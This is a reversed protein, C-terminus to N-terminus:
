PWTYTGGCQEDADACGVAARIEAEDYSAHSAICSGVCTDNSRKVVSRSDAYCYGGWCYPYGASCVCDTPVATPTATPTPTPMPTPMESPMPSPATTPNPSANDAPAAAEVATGHAVCEFTLAASWRSWQAMAVLQRVRAVYIELPRLVDGRVLVAARRTVAASANKVALSTNKAVTDNAVTDNAVLSTNKAATLPPNGTATSHPAATATTATVASWMPARVEAESAIAM